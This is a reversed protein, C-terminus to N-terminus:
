LRKYAEMTAKFAANLAEEPQKTGSLVDGMMIQIQNSIEPYIPAGPRAQGNALAEAFTKNAETAFVEYKDFLSKRTPLQQQLANGPGMYVDRALNACMEVKDKDKSFSAITWGGTGTSRKDTTPGPIPSFTWNAFEDPDLTAKLQALQWNGGIFLATTGAAAAANLDDYNGITTVRKPAAGSDVLDKYYTLAKLFKEKNEGEGFIPKGTDDVLKGGLAWYNALWDFTSGEYRAANFLIGEMGEKVSAIGAKKLDDWTQPADPVISKNRYLVRLDTDWWWARITQDKDTIGSRIFPFLDAVEDKSFYPTFDALVHNVMFQSLVFSDVAACDPANGAKAQELMKAQETGIDASMFQMQLKWDPHKKIFDIFLKRYGEAIAPDANNQSDNTLRVTLTKPADALGIRDKTALEQAFAAPVSFLMTSLALASVFARKM